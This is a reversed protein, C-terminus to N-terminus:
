RATMGGDVVLESGTMFSADDSALYVIGRAVEEARGMRGLPHAAAMTQAVVEASVGRQLMAGAVGQRAMDTDIIGPHISNIRINYGLAAAEMATGKTFLRVGGKSLNYLTSNPSGILGAVSSLNVIAAASSGAPRQKMARFAHQTGLVVSKLNIDFMEQIDAGSADETRGHRYIGANNVLIDVQGYEKIATAFV